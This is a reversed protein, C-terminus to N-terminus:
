SLIRAGDICTMVNEYKARGVAYNIAQCPSPTESEFYIYKFNDGFSKVWKEDLPKDSGNDIAIVEYDDKCVNHQYKTTLSFLTRSAERQMNFFNVIVSVKPSTLM